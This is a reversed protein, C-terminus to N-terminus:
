EFRSKTYSTSDPQPAEGTELRRRIEPWLKDGERLRHARNPQGWLFDNKADARANRGFSFLYLKGSILEFDGSLRKSSFSNEAVAWACHGGWEPLYKEPSAQFLKLNEESSFLWKAGLYSHSFEPKGVTAKKATFFAVADFGSIARGDDFGVTNVSTQALSSLAVLMGALFTSFTRYMHPREPQGLNLCLM